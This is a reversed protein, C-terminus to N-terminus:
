AASIASARKAPRHREVRGGRKLGLRDAIVRLMKDDVVFGRPKMQLARLPSSEGPVVGVPFDFPDDSRRLEPLFDLAGVAERLRGIGEGPIATNYSPHASPAVDSKASIAGVNRLSTLPLGAQAPDNTAAVAEGMGLGGQTRYLDMLKNLSRRAKGTAGLFAQVSEPEDLAKFGPIITAIEKALRKQTRAPMAEAAYRLMLGRPIHSFASSTPGMAWPMFLPDEGTDRRMQKALAMHSYANGRDAAWVADPNAFMFDQGGPLDYGEDFPVDHVRTLRRGGASQDSMSTIVPKGELDFVSLTPPEDIEDTVDVALSAVKPAEGKRKEIRPDVGKAAPYVRRAGPAPPTETKVALPPMKLNESILEPATKAWEPADPRLLDFDRAYDAAKYRDMFRGRENVFGRNSGDSAARKRADADPIAALADLHTRGTYVRGDVRAASLLSPARPAAKPKAAPAKAVPKKVAVAKPKVALAEAPMGRAVIEELAEKGSKTAAKKGLRKVAFEVIEKKISM